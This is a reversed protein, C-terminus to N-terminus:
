DYFVEKQSILVTGYIHYNKVLAFLTTRTQYGVKSIHKTGDQEQIFKLVGDAYLNVM